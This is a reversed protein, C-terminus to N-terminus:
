SSNSKISVTQHTHTSLQSDPCGAVNNGVLLQSNNLINLSHPGLYTIEKHATGKLLCQKIHTNEKSQQMHGNLAHTLPLTFHVWPTHLGGM